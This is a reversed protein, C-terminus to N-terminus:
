GRRVGGGSFGGMNFIIKEQHSYMRHHKSLDYVYKYRDLHNSFMRFLVLYVGTTLYLNMKEHMWVVLNKMLHNIQNGFKEYNCCERHVKSENTHRQRDLAISLEMKEDDLYQKRNELLQM